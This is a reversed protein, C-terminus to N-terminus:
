SQSDVAQKENAADIAAAQMGPWTDKMQAMCFVMQGMCFVIQGVHIMEEHGTCGGGLVEMGSM